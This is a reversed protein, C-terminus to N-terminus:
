EDGRGRLGYEDIILNKEIPEYEKTRQLADIFRLARQPATDRRRKERAVGTLRVWESIRSLDRTLDEFIIEQTEKDFKEIQILVDRYNSVNNAETEYDEAQNSGAVRLICSQMILLRNLSRLHSAADETRRAAVCSLANRIPEQIATLDYSVFRSGSSRAIALLLVVGTRYAEARSTFLGEDVASDVLDIKWQADHLSIQAM